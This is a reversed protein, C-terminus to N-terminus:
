LSRAYFSFGINAKIDEIQVRHRETHHIMFNLWDKKTLEGLVPHKFLQTDFVFESNRLGECIRTRNSQFKSRLEDMNSFRGMPKINEPAERKVSRDQQNLAIKHKGLMEDHEAISSAPNSNEKSLIRYVGVETIVIHEMCEHISWVMPNIKFKSQDENLDELVSLLKAQTSEIEEIFEAEM